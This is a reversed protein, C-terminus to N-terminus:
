QYEWLIEHDYGPDLSLIKFALVTSDKSLYQTTFVREKATEPRDHEYYLYRYKKYARGEPLLVWQLLESTEAEIAFAMRSTSKTGHMFLGPSQIEALLEIPKGAPVKGFDFVVDWRYRGDEGLPAKVVRAELEQPPFRVQGEVGSLILRQRFVHQSKNEPVKVVLLRRYVYIRSDGATGTSEPKWARLDTIRSDSLVRFGSLDPASADDSEEVTVGAWPRPPGEDLLDGLRGLEPSGQAFSLTLTNLRVMRKYYQFSFYPILMMIPVLIPVYLYTVWDRRDFLSSWFRRGSSGQLKRSEATTDTAGRTVAVAGEGRGGDGAPQRREPIPEWPPSAPLADGFLDPRGRCVKRAVCYGHRVLSSVELSDFCDLDTRINATQRQIEPHPATPDEEPEVVDTIRAFLFGGPGAFTENELQWVRDMLIDSARLATRILGGGHGRVVKIQRGVDSVIVGDLGGQLRRFCRRGTAQRFAEELLHRNLWLQDGSNLEQAGLRSTRLLEDASGDDPTLGAFGAEHQFQYHCMVHWLSALIRELGASCAPDRAEEPRSMVEELASALQNLPTDAPSQGAKELLLTLRRLPSDGESLTAERLAELAGHLDEFDDADLTDAALLDREFFRFMRVGLNDYVGGDTYSQRGFEGGSVGVEQGTLELPPFFGPFASSAAVAMPVTALGTHINDVRFSHGAGRRVMSLGERGFSCLCGETLNTTLLHLKPSKPLEFLSVDGYLFREYHQELLGTRTLKRNSRGLFKRVWRLPLLLPFRRLIRSRVNLRVFALFEAAAGEFEEESGGYRKWNLVLHAAFISGGSVSTIHTVNQLLGADRLFRVLGLHYLSARFGGGSLALGFKKM